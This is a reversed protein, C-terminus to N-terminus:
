GAGIGAHVPRRVLGAVTVVAAVVMAAMGGATVTLVVPSTLASLFTGAVLAAAATLYGAAALGVVRVRKVEVFTTFTLLWALVPLVTIGHM